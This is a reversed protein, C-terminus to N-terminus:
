STCEVDASLCLVKNPPAAPLMKVDKLEKVRLGPVQALAELLSAWNTSFVEQRVKVENFVCIEVIEAYSFPEEVFRDPLLQERNTLTWWFEAGNSMRWYTMPSHDAIISLARFWVDSATM